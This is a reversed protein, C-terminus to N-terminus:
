RAELGFYRELVAPLEAEPIPSSEICRNGRYRQLVGDTLRVAGGRSLRAVIHGQRFPSRPSSQHFRARNRFEDFSRPRPTFSYLPSWKGRHRWHLEWEKGPVIRYEHAGDRQAGPQDLRLPGILRSASGVDALWREDLHVVLALHDFPAGFAGRASGWMKASILDVRFGLEGLLWGFAGNLEYCFGGRNRGVIKAVAAEPRLDMRRGELVDLNEFPVRLLHARHLKRLTRANPPLPGKVGLHALYRGLRNM